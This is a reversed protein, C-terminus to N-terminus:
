EFLMMKQLGVALRRAVLDRNRQTPPTVGLDVGRKRSDVVIGARIGLRDGFALRSPRGFVFFQAELRGSLPEVFLGACPEDVGGASGTYLLWGRSGTHGIGVEAVDVQLDGVKVARDVKIGLQEIEINGLTV